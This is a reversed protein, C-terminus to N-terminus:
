LDDPYETVSLTQCYSAMAFNAVPDGQKEGLGCIKGDSRNNVEDIMVLGLTPVIKEEWLFLYLRDAIKYTQCQDADALGKEVGKLCQWAYYNENLYTHEYVETPSYRYLKRKGVLERTREHPCVNERYPQDLGGHTVEIKVDTLPEGALARQYLGRDIEDFEPIYGIVRTFSNTLTDLILSISCSEELWDVLYIGQRMSTIRVEKKLVDDLTVDSNGFVLAQTSGEANYLTVHKRRLDASHDLAYTSPAFGRELDAVSIWASSEKNM